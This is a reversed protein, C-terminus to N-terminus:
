KQRRRSSRYSQFSAVPPTPQCCDPCGISLVRAGFRKKDTFLYSPNLYLTSVYHNGRVRMEFYTFVCSHIIISSALFFNNFLNLIQHSSSSFTSSIIHLWSERHTSPVLENLLWLAQVGISAHFYVSMLWHTQVRYLIVTGSHFFTSIVMFLTGDQITSPRTWPYHSRGSSCISPGRGNKRDYLLM